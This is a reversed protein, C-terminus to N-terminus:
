SSKESDEDTVFYDKLKEFFSKRQPSVNAEELDALERLL